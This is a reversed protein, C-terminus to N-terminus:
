LHYQAAPDWDGLVEVAVDVGDSLRQSSKPHFGQVDLVTQEEWGLCEFGM